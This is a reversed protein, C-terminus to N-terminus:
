VFLYLYSVFNLWMNVFVVKVPIEIFGLFDDINGDQACTSKRASQMVDKFFRNFLYLCAFLQLYLM